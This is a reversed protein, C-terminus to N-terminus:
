PNRIFTRLDIIISTFEHLQEAFVEHAANPLIFLKTYKNRNYAFKIGSKIDLWTEQGYIIFLPLDPNNIQLTKKPYFYNDIISFFGIDATSNINLYYIYNFINYKNKLHKSIKSCIYYSIIFMFYYSIPQFIKLLNIFNFIPLKQIISYNNIRNDSFNWPEVLILAKVNDPYKNYYNTSVYCGFSHACIIISKLNLKIRWAEISDIFLTESLIYDNTFIPKSSLGYGILDIAYIDYINYLKEYVSVFTALGSAFGHIIVLIPKDISKIHLTNIYHNNNDNNNDLYVKSITYPIKLEKLLENQYYELKIQNM